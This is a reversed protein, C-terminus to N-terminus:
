PLIGGHIVQSWFLAAPVHRSDPSFVRLRFNKDARHQVARAVAEPFVDLFQGALRVDDQRFVFCHDKDVATEPVPVFAAFVGGGRFRVFGEPVFLKLTVDGVVFFVGAFEALEAPM